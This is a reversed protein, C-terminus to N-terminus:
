GETGKGYLLAQFVAIRDPKQLLNLRKCLATALRHKQSFDPDCTVILNLDDRRWSTFVNSQGPYLAEGEEAFGLAALDKALPNRSSDYVLFDYDSDIPMPDCIVRSGTASADFHSLVRAVDPWRALDPATFPGLHM